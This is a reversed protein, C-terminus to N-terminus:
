SSQMLNKLGWSNYFVLEELIMVVASYQYSSAAPKLINTTSNVLWKNHLPTVADKPCSSAQGNGQQHLSAHNFHLDHWNKCHHVRWTKFKNSVKHRCLLQKSVLCEFERSRWVQRFLLIRRPPSKSFKYHQTCLKFIM